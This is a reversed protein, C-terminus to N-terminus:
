AGGEEVQQLLGALQGARVKAEAREGPSTESDDDVGREVGIRTLLARVLADHHERADVEVPSAEVPELWGVIDLLARARQARDLCENVEGCVDGRDRPEVHECIEAAQGHLDFYAGDRLLPVLEPPITITM